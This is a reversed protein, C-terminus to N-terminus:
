ACIDLVKAAVVAFHAPLRTYFHVKGELTSTVSGVVFVNCEDSEDMAFASIVACVHMCLFTQKYTHPTHKFYFCSGRLLFSTLQKECM